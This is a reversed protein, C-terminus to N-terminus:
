GSAKECNSICGSSSTEAQQEYYLINIKEIQTHSHTHPNNQFSLHVQKLM